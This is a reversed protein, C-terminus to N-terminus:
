LYVVSSEVGNRGLVLQAISDWNLRHEAENRDKEEALQAQESIRM